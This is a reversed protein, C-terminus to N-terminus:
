VIHRRRRRCVMTVIHSPIMGTTQKEQM